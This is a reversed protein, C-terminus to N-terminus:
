VAVAIGNLKADATLVAKWKLQTGSPQSSIAVTANQPCQTWTVGNDRSVYFTKFPIVSLGGAFCHYLRFQTSSYDFIIM